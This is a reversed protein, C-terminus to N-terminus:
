VNKQRVFTNNCHLYWCFTKWFLRTHLHIYKFFFQEVDNTRISIPLNAPLSHVMTCAMQPYHTRYFYNTNIIHWNTNHRTIIYHISCIINYIINRRILIINIFSVIKHIIFFVNQKIYIYIARRSDIVYQHQIDNFRFFKTIRILLM